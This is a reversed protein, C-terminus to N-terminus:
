GTPIMITVQSGKKLNRILFNGGLYYVYNYILNWGFGSGEKIKKQEGFDGNIIKKLTQEDFGPGTDKLDVVLMNYFLSLKLTVSGRATYKVSNNVLNILVRFLKEKPMFIKKKNLSKCHDVKLKISKSDALLNYLGGIMHEVETISIEEPTDKQIFEESILMRITNKLSRLTFSSTEIYKLKESNTESMKMVELMQITSNIPAAIDHNIGSVRSELSEYNKGFVRRKLSFIEQKYNSIKNVYNDVKVSYGFIMKKGLMYFPIKVSLYSNSKEGPLKEESVVTNGANFVAEDKERLYKLEDAEFLEEDKVPYKFKANKNALEKFQPLCGKSLFTYLHDYTKVYMNVNNNDLYSLVRNIESLKLSNLSSNINAVSIGLIYKEKNNVIPIKLTTVSKGFREEELFDYEMSEKKAKKLHILPFKKSTYVYSGFEDLVWLIHNETDINKVLKILEKEDFIEKNCTNM